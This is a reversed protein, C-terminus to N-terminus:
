LKLYIRCAAAKYSTRADTKIPSFNINIKIYKKDGDLHMDTYISVCTTCQYMCMFFFLNFPHIKKLNRWGVFHQSPWRHPFLGTGLGRGRSKEELVAFFHM